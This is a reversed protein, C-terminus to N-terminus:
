LESQKSYTVELILHHLSSGACASQDFVWTKDSYLVSFAHKIAKEGIVVIDYLLIFFGLSHIVGHYSVGSLQSIYFASM